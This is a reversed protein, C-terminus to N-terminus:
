EDVEEWHSPIIQLEGNMMLYELIAMPDDPADNIDVGDVEIDYMAEEGTSELLITGAARYMTM